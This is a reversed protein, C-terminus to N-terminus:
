ARQVKRLDQSMGRADLWALLRKRAVQSARNVARRWYEHSQALTGICAEAMKKQAGASGLHKQVTLLLTELQFQITELREKADALGRLSHGYAQLADRERPRNPKSGKVPSKRTKM